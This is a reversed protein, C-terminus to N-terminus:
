FPKYKENNINYVQIQTGDKANQICCRRRILKKGIFVTFKPFQAEISEWSKILIKIM